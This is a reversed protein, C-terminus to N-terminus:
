AISATGYFEELETIIKALETQYTEVGSAFSYLAIADENPDLESSDELKYGDVLKSSLDSLIKTATSVLTPLASVSLQLLKYAIETLIKEQDPSLNLGTLQEFLQVPIQNSVIQLLPNM